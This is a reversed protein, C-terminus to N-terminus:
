SAARSLWPAPEQWSAPFIAPLFSRLKRSRIVSAIKGARYLKIETLSQLPFGKFFITGSLGAGIVDPFRGLHFLFLEVGFPYQIKIKLAIQM